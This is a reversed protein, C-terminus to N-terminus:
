FRRNLRARKATFKVRLSPSLGPSHLTHRLVTDLKRSLSAVRSLHLDVCERARPSMPASPSGLKLILYACAGRDTVTEFSHPTDLQPSPKLYSKDDLLAVINTSLTM